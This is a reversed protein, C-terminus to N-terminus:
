QIFQPRYRDFDGNINKNNYKMQYESTKNNTNQNVQTTLMAALGDARNM